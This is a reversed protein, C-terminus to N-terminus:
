KKSSDIRSNELQKLFDKTVNGACYEGTFVSDEFRKIKRNGVHASLKLADLNQYILTDAGIFKEVQKVTRNHAVLETTAPMDIGYVNQYRIPPAASAFFVKKAGNNRVMEIIKKSTNGRVISDDVLLVNKNKFEIEIPSLKHAVSRKRISQGPMIFTRGIYRNKIFGERYKIDLKHAVQMASTRSTDPVPIVVDIDLHGYEKLIKEGLYDGMRLRSKHVSISDITSDPRSFYVFEFLCPTHDSKKYCQKKLLEGSESIIIAEGPKVDRVFSYGLASLAASESAVMYSNGSKGIVLPRIGNPDRFAVIGVGAVLM